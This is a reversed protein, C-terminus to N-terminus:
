NITKHNLNIVLDHWGTNSTTKLQHSDIDVSIRIYCILFIQDQNHFINFKDMDQRFCLFSRRHCSPPHHTKHILSQKTEALSNNIQKCSTKLNNSEIKQKPYGLINTPTPKHANWNDTARDICIPTEKKPESCVKLNNQLTIKQNWHLLCTQWAALKITWTNTLQSLCTRKLTSTPLSLTYL